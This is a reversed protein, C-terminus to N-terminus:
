IQWYRIKLYNYLNPYKDIIPDLFDSPDIIKYKTQDHLYQRWNNELGKINKMYKKCLLNNNGKPIIHLHLYNSAKILEENQNKIIQEAWLTQRMLQYFPEFFYISTRYSNLTKLQQSDNILNSYRRLRM